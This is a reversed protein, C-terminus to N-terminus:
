SPPLIYSTPEITRVWAWLYSLIEAYPLTRWMDLWKSKRFRLSRTAQETTTTADQQPTTSWVSSHCLSVIDTCPGTGGRMTRMQALSPGRNTRRTDLERSRVAGAHSAWPRRLLCCIAGNLFGGSCGGAKPVFAGSRHSPDRHRDNGLYTFAPQERTGERSKRFAQDPARERSELCERYKRSAPIRTVEVSVTWRELLSIEELHNAAWLIYPLSKLSTTTYYFIPIKLQNLAFSQRLRLM